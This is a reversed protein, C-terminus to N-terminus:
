GRLGGSIHVDIGKLILLDKDAELPLSHSLTSSITVKLRIVEAHWSNREFVGRESFSM